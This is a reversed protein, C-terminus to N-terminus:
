NEGKSLFQIQIDLNMLQSTVDQLLRSIQLHHLDHGENEVWSCKNLFISVKCFM